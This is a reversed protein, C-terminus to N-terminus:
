EEELVAFPTIAIKGDWGAWMEGSNSDKVLLDGEYSRTLLAGTEEPTFNFRVSGTAANFIEGAKEVVPPQTRSTSLYLTVTHDTLDYEGGLDLDFITFNVTKNLGRPIVCDVAVATLLSM